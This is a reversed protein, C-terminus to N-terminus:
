PHFGGERHCLKSPYIRLAKSNGRTRLKSKEDEINAIDDQFVASDFRNRDPTANTEKIDVHSPIWQVSINWKYCIDLIEVLMQEGEKSHQVSDLMVCATRSDTYIVFDKLHQDEVCDLAVRIAKLEASTISTENNLRYSLRQKTNEIYVGIACATGDKSADTYIRGRGKHVGNMAFLAAQKLKRPNTDQKATDLAELHTQIDVTVRGNLKCVIMISNFMEKNKYFLREMYTYSDMSEIKTPIDIAKLQKAVTNNWSIYRAIERQTVYELRLELPEQGSLAALTNLPTTKTAGTVKRLCHNNIVSVM